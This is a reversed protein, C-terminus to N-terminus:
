NAQRGLFLGDFTQGAQVGALKLNLLCYKKLTPYVYGEAHFTDTNPTIRTRVSYREVNLGLAPFYSGSYSRIRVSKVCHVNQKDFRM